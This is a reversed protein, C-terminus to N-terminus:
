TRVDGLLVTQDPGAVGFPKLYIDVNRHEDVEIKEIVRSIMNGASISAALLSDIDNWIENPAGEPVGGNTLNNRVLRLEETLRGVTANLEDNKERLESMTIVGAAYMERYKERAKRLKGLRSTLEKESLRNEDKAKQERCYEAAIREAVNPKERLLRSFYSRISDLLEAEGIVTKNPCTDVGNANRGTCVWNIYTNKYTRVTRRFSVGCCKCKILKSFPYKESNREGTLKFADRRQELIKSARSFTHEDVIALEPRV